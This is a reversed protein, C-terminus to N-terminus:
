MPSRPIRRSLHAPLAPFPTNYIDVQYTGNATRRILNSREELQREIWPIDTTDQWRVLRGKADREPPPNSRQSYESRWTEHMDSALNMEPTLRGASERRRESRITGFIGTAGLSGLGALLLGTSGWGNSASAIADERSVLRPSIPIFRNRTGSHNEDPANEANSSDRPTPAANHQPVAAPIHRITTM